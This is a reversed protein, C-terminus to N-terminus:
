REKCTNKIKLLTPIFSLLFLWIPQVVEFGTLWTNDDVEYQIHANKDLDM